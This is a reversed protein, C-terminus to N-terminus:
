IIISKEERDIKDFLTLQFKEDIVSLKGHLWKEILEISETQPLRNCSGRVEIIKYEHSTEGLLITLREPRFMKAVWYKGSRLESDYSYICHHMEKSEQHLTRSDRIIEIHCIRNNIDDVSFYPYIYNQGFSLMEMRFNLEHHIQYIDNIKRFMIDPVAEGRQELVTKMRFIDKIKVYESVYRENNDFEAVENFLKM